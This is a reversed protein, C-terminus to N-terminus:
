TTTSTTCRCWRSPLVRRPRAQCVPCRSIARPMITINRGVPRIITGAATPSATKTTAATPNPAKAAASSTRRPRAPAIQSIAAISRAAIAYMNAIAEVRRPHNVPNSTVQNTSWDSAQLM